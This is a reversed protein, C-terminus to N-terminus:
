GVDLLLSREAFGGFRRQSRRCLLRGCRGDGSPSGDNLKRAGRWRDLGCTIDQYALGSMLVVRGSDLNRRKQIEFKGSKKRERKRSWNIFSMKIKIKTKTKEPPSVFLFLLPGLLFLGAESQYPRHALAAEVAFWHNLLDKRNLLNRLRRFFAVDVDGCGCIDAFNSEGRELLWLRLLWRRTRGSGARFAFQPASLCKPIEELALAGEEVVVNHDEFVYIFLRM